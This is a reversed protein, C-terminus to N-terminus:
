SPRDSTMSKSNMIFVGAVEVPHGIVAMLVYLLGWNCTKPAM